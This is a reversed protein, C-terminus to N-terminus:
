ADKSMQTSPRPTPLTTGEILGAAPCSIRWVLGTPQFDIAVDCGLGMKLMGDIVTSGFGRRGIKAVPPGGREVWSMIFQPQGAGDSEIDWCVAVSGSLNSLAGYKAANTALEHLAMGLSQSASASIRVPPGDLAIRTDHEDGFHALQSRVLEGLQVAKWEDKVLLDQSASLARVRQGFIELFEEPQTKVTQRAIAEILGLMNKSRHNVEGM